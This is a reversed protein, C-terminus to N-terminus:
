QVPLPEPVVKKPTVQSSEDKKECRISFFASESINRRNIPAERQDSVAPVASAKGVILDNFKKELANEYSAKAKDLESKFVYGNRTIANGFASELYEYMYCVIFPTPSLRTILKVLAILFLGNTFLKAGLQTKPEPTFRLM